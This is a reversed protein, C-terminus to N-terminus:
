FSWGSCGRHGASPPPNHGEILNSYSANMMRTLARLEAASNPHLKRGLEEAASRIKLALDTLALPIKEEIGCPEIRAPTELRM